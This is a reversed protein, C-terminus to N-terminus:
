RVGITPQPCRQVDDVDRIEEIQHVVLIVQTSDQGSVVSFFGLLWDAVHLRDSGADHAGRAFFGHRGDFRARCPRDHKAARVTAIQPADVIRRHRLIARRFLRRFLTVADAGVLRRGPLSAGALQESRM